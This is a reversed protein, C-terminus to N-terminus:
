SANGSTKRRSCNRWLRIQAPRALLRWLAAYYRTGPLRPHSRTLRACSRALRRHSRFGDVEVRPVVVPEEAAMGSEAEPEAGQGIVVEADLPMGLRSALDAIGARLSAALPALDATQTALFAAAPLLVRIPVMAPTANTAM